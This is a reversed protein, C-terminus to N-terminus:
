HLYKCEMERMGLQQTLTENGLGGNVDRNVHSQLAVTTKNVLILLFGRDLYMQETSHILLDGFSAQTSFTQRLPFPM